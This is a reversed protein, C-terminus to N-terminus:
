KAACVPERVAAATGIMQGLKVPREAGLATETFVAEPLKVAGQKFLLVITSGGFQFMGKERGRHTKCAEDLNKIRGVLCAGVEIQVVKGFNETDMVTYERTNQRFVPHNHVVIPQVPHYRGDIRRNRSKTGNDIYCYRHYNEVGLRLIVCTGRLYEDGLERDGVLDYISYESDKINFVSDANIRYASMHGDCPSILHTPEMDVPRAEPRIRRTFFDNFCRYNEPIYESLDLGNRRVFGDILRVSEPKNMYSGVLETLLPNTILRRAPAGLMHRKYCYKLSYTMAKSAM